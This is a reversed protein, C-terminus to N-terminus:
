IEHMHLAVYQMNSATYYSPIHHNNISKILKNMYLVGDFISSFAALTVQKKKNGGLLLQNLKFVKIYNLCWISFINHYHYSCM